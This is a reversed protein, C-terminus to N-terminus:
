NDLLDMTVFVKRTSTPHLREPFSDITFNFSSPDGTPAFSFSFASQVKAKPITIVMPFDVGDTRRGLTHAEVRYYGAFREPDIEVSTAGSKREQYFVVIVTYVDGATAEAHDFTISNVAIEGKTPIAITEEGNLLYAYADMNAAVPNEVTVAGSAALDVVISGDEISVANVTERRPVYIKKDAAAEVLGAGTLVALGEKSILADEM